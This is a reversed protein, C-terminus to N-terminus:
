RLAGQFGAEASPCGEKFSNFIFFFYSISCRKIVYDIKLGIHSVVWEATIINGTKKLTLLLIYASSYYGELFGGYRKQHNTFAPGKSFIGWWEFIRLFYGANFDDFAVIKRNGAELYPCTM